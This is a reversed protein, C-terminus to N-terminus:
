RCKARILIILFSSNDLQGLRCQAPAPDPTQNTLVPAPAAGYM